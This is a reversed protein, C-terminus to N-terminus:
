KTKNKELLEIIRQNQIVILKLLFTSDNPLIDPSVPISKANKIEVLGTEIAKIREDIETVEPATPSYEKLLKSRENKLSDIIFISSQILNQRALESISFSNLNNTQKELVQIEKDLVAIQAKLQKVKPYDETYNTLTKRLEENAEIRKQRLKALDSIQASISFCLSFCLIFLPILKKM